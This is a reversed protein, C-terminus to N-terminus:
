DETAHEDNSDDESDAEEGAAAEAAEAEEPDEDDMVVSRHNVVLEPRHMAWLAVVGVISLLIALM